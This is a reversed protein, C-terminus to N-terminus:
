LEYYKKPLWFDFSGIALLPIGPILHMGLVLKISSISKVDTQTLEWTTYNYLFVIMGFGHCVYIQLNWSNFVLEILNDIM